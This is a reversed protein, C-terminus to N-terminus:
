KGHQAEKVTSTLFNHAATYSATFGDGIKRYLASRINAPLKKWCAYCFAMGTQKAHGCQCTGSKLATVAALRDKERQTLVPESLM